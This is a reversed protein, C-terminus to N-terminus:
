KEWIKNKTRRRTAIEIVVSPLEVPSTLSDPWKNPHAFNIQNKKM